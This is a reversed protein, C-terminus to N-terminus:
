GALAGLDLTGDKVPPCWFYSGSLPRSFNFLGDQIGDEEGIMRRMQVEFSNLTAGFAVFMLGEASGATWPMSRRVVFAEPDFSEQATRKVHASPPSGDFEENDSLRRGIMDDTEAESYAAFHAMDHAWLQVAVFSSGDETIAAEVADDGDPNETGDVYGTLDRGEKYKFGDVNTSLTALPGLHQQLVRGAAQIDGRQWFWLDNQTSPIDIGPASLAPFPRLGDISAGAGSVLGPGVGVVLSEDIELRAIAALLAESPVGANRRYELYRAHGPVPLLIGPQFQTM